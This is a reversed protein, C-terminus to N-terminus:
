LLSKLIKQELVRKRLIDSHHGLYKGLLWLKRQEPEKINLVRVLNYTDNIVM